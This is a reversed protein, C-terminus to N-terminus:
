MARRYAGGVEFLAQTIQGLSARRAADMLVAFTNGGSRVAEKLRRLEREAEDRHRAQFERLRQIQLKKEEGTARVVPLEAGRGAAGKEDLFTNVGVVPIAGSHKGEEYLRSEEQIKDRLYGSEMAGPVGGRASIREFEQLVAEEVLDTLEEIIFSGQLPNDNRALGLEEQIVLQIALARRVSEETPTTVAEDYANTHLSNCQDYYAMLAQLTTRIDNFAVERSHLSRGSTQIHYKLKQSREGAGYGDRVVIAWLRRAVRGLVAYEPDLGMSFFFSFSPAFEDIEMGRSRYYEVYTLGNALTFALQTIPNAGAEAIHYGSISVSYFNRVRNQIFYEQVDGMMKLAFATSLICTNQAQDEKLIDAQVTGRVAQLTRAQIAEREGPNPSRGERKEFLEEQQDIAANFFMALIAPAPGNITMSVSTSPDALNFGHFLRKMDDLTAISVGSEGIKGFIDPREDPDQGYLTVSDFATSLRRAALGQCLLHFRRNTREPPGEGAFQRTPQEDERRLPFVGATFPFRGPLNELRLFRLLEGRDKWKPLAVRPLVAGSLTRWSLPAKIERGRVEYLLEGRAYDQKLKEWESLLRRSEPSVSSELREALAGAAAGAEQSSPGRQERLLEATRRAAEAARVKEAEAETAKRYDRVRRAAEALYNERPAPIIKIGAAPSSEPPLLQGARLPAEKGLREELLGALRRYLREVGPDAFASACTGIVRELADEKGLRRLQRAVASVADEAARKDFKNVAVLDAFDLMDIKELQTPAGFEPTMAYISTGAVDLIGSAGQASGATEIFLLAFGAQKFVEVAERVAPSLESSSDRTAFSRFFVQPRYISNMRLRDGLLAGGGRRKSPDVSLIAIPLEPFDRGFRFILEDVLSSKGAGGPGTIGVVHFAGAGKWRFKFGAPFSPSDPLLGAEAATLLRALYLDEGGPPPRDFRSLSGAVKEAAELVVRGMGKLGLKRGDEPTFIKAVGIGELFEVESPLIVGGGGGFILIHRGCARDLEQRLYPFFENHGGQYSSVAVAHADEQVAAAAIEAVSRNHGLHVVEAGGEQLLRRILNIAADHGDFLATATIIRVKTRILGGAAAETKASPYSESVTKPTM